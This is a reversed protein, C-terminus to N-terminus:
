IRELTLGARPKGALMKFAASRPVGTQRVFDMISAYERGEPVTRVPQLQSANVQGAPRGQKKMPRPPVAALRAAEREPDQYRFSLGKHEGAAIPRNSKLSRHVASISVGLAQRMDTITDFYQNLPLVVIGTGMLKKSEETHHRGTWHDYHGAEAAARIKTMGEPTIFREAKPKGRQAAGIKQKVEDSVTKGYRYHKAGAFRGQMAKSMKARTEASPNRMPAKADRAINYCYEEAAHAHLWVNEAALLDQGDPVEEVVVFIFSGSGYKRWAAQLHACHHNGKRLANLHRNRRTDFDVASGVYFKQNKINIIKYIVNKM